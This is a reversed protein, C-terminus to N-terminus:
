GADPVNTCTISYKWRDKERLGDLEENVGPRSSGAPSGGCARRLGEPWNGARSMLDTLGAVDKDQEAKGDQALRLARTYGGHSRPIEESLQRPFAFLPSSVALPRAECGWRDGYCWALDLALYEETDLM